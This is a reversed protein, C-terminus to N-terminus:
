RSSTECRPMKFKGYLSRIVKRDNYRFDDRSSYCRLFNIVHDYQALLVIYIDALALFVRVMISTTLDRCGLLISMLNSGTLILTLM